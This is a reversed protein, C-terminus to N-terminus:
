SASLTMRSSSAAYRVGLWHNGISVKVALVMVGHHFSGDYSPVSNGSYMNSMVSVTNNPLM